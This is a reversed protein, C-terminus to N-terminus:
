RLSTMLMCAQLLIETDPLSHVMGVGVVRVAGAEIRGEATTVRVVLKAQVGAVEGGVTVKSISNRVMGM